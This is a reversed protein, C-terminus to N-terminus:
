IASSVIKLPFQICHKAVARFGLYQGLVICLEGFKEIFHKFFRRRYVFPQKYILREFLKFKIIQDNFLLLLEM